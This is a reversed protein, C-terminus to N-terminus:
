RSPDCRYKSADYIVQSRIMHTENDNDRETLISEFCDLMSSTMTTSISCHISSQTGQQAMKIM